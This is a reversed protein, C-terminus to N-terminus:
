GAGQTGISFLNPWLEHLVEPVEMACGIVVALTSWFICGAYWDRHSILDARILDDLARAYSPDIHM